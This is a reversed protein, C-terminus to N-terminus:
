AKDPDLYDALFSNWFRKDPNYKRIADQQQQWSAGHRSYTARFLDRDAFRFYPLYYSGDQELVYRMSAVAWARARGDPARHGDADPSTAIDVDMAVSVMPRGACYSLFPNVTDPQILRVTASLVNMRHQAALSGLERIRWEIQEDVPLFFEVLIDCRTATRQSAFDVSARMWNIRRKPPNHDPLFEENLEQWIRTRMGQDVRAAAWAARMMESIGWGQEELADPGSPASPTYQVCLAHDFFVPNANALGSGAKPLTTCELWAYFLHADPAAALGRLRQALYPLGMREASQQLWQDQGVQLTAQLILGCAGYGGIVARFLDPNEDASAQLEQGNGCLVRLSRVTTSVPGARPDRGHCNVSISGGVTFHPSSQHVSPCLKPQAAFLVRHLEAWTVGADVTVTRTAVDLAIRHNMAETLLVRGEHVVTHGGQSHHMGALALQRGGASALLHRATDHGDVIPLDLVSTRNLGVLDEIEIAM